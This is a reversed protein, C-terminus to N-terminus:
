SRAGKKKAKYEELSIAKGKVRKAKEIHIFDVVDEMTKPDDKLIREAFQRKMEPKLKKYERWLGEILTAQASIEKHESTKTIM